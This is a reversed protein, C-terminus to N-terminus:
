APFALVTKEIPTRPERIMLLSGDEMIPMIIAAHGALVHERYLIEDTRPNKFHLEQVVIRKGKYATKKDLLKYDITTFYKNSINSM